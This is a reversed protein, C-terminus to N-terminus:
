DRLPVRRGRRKSVAIAVFGSAVLFVTAPEPTATVPPSSVLTISPPGISVPNGVSLARSPDSGWADIVPGAAGLDAGLFYDGVPAITPIPVGSDDLLFFTFRDPIGGEDDNASFSLFFSFELGPAFRESFVSLFSNDTITVGSELSGSAGGFAFTGGLASGGGFSVNSISIANNADGIGNGDIFEFFVSFPGAPHGLLPTTNLTVKITDSMAVQASLFSAWAPVIVLLLKFFRM